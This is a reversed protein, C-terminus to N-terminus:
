NLKNNFIYDHKSVHHTNFDEICNVSYHLILHGPV